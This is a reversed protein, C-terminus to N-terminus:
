EHGAQAERLEDPTNINRFSLGRADFPQWEAADLYRVRVKDYFGIIKLHGAELKRQIPELCRQSYIAHLGEPYGDVRPVIVDTDPTILAIMYRLLAPNLFPMDCAVCLTHDSRSNLIATYIGGLSGKDPLADPVMPLGLHAYADPTNTVLITERQGLGSVREIVHEIMPKGLLPVFSKDTGMRSSKGGANIAVTLSTM